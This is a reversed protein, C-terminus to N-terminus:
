ERFSVPCDYFYAQRAHCAKNAIQPTRLIILKYEGDGNTNVPISSSPIKMITRSNELTLGSVITNFRVELNPVYPKLYIRSFLLHTGDSLPALLHTFRTSEYQFNFPTVEGITIGAGGPIRLLYRLDGTRRHPTVM